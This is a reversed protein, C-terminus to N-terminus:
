KCNKSFFLFYASKRSTNCGYKLARIISFDRLVHFGTNKKYIPSYHKLWIWLELKINWLEYKGINKSTRKNRREEVYANNPTSICAFIHANPFVHRAGVCTDEWVFAFTQLISCSFCPVTKFSESRTTTKAKKRAVTRKTLM